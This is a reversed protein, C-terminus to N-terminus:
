EVGLLNLMADLDPTEGLYQPDCMADIRPMYAKIQAICIQAMSRAYGMPEMAKIGDMHSDALKEIRKLAQIALEADRSIIHAVQENTM